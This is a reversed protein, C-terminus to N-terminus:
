ENRSGHSLREELYEERQRRGTADGATVEKSRSHSRKPTIIGEINGATAMGERAQDNFIRRAREEHPHAQDALKGRSQRVQEQIKDNPLLLPSGGGDSEPDAFVM